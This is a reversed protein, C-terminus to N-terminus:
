LYKDRRRMSIWAAMVPELYKRQLNLMVRRIAVERAQAILINYSSIFILMAVEREGSAFCRARSSRLSRCRTLTRPM